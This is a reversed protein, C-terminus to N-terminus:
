RPELPLVRVAKAPNIANKQKQQISSSELELLDASILSELAKWARIRQTRALHMVISHVKPSVKM